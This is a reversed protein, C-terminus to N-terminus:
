FKELNKCKKFFHLVKTAYIKHVDVVSLKAQFRFVSLM